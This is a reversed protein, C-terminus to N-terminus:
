EVRETSTSSMQCGPSFDVGMVKLNCPYSATLTAPNGANSGLATACTADTTCTTGNVSTIISLSAQALNPAAQYLQTLTSTRPSVASRSIALQRAGADVANTLMVYNNLAIGFVAAGIVVAFLIPAVIAFEIAAAGSCGDNRCDRTRCRAASTRAAPVAAAYRRMVDIAPM